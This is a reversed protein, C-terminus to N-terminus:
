KSGEANIYEIEPKFKWGKFFSKLIVKVRGLKNDKARFAKLIHFAVRTCLYLIGKIGERRYLYVENRYLYAYRSLREPSDTAINVKDNSKMDHLVRSKTVAYCPKKRSIRRTYELDDSWIFFEKIPLGFEKVSALPFFASVFTAMIVPMLDSEYDCIKHRLSTKQINMNCISGDKWYAVSSLFGYNGGLAEDAGILYDLALPDPLCDDDMIWLFEYGLEAAIRMGYNFGGAGGLNSGTNYYKIEDQEIYDKLADATGDTSANDIVLIDLNDFVQNKLAEINRLLDTKRNFTVVIAAVKSIM